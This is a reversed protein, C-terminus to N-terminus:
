FYKEPDHAMLNLFRGDDLLLKKDVTELPIRKGRPKIDVRESGYKNYSSTSPQGALSRQSSGYIPPRSYSPAPIRNSSQQTQQDM